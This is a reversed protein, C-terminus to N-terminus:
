LAPGFKIAPKAEDEDKQCPPWQIKTSIRGGNADSQESTEEKKCPPRELPRFPQASPPTANPATVPVYHGLTPDYRMGPMPNPDYPKKPPPANKDVPRGNATRWSETTTSEGDPGITTTTKTGRCYSGPANCDIGVSNLADTADQAIAAAPLTCIGLALVALRGAM